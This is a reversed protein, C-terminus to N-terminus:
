RKEFGATWNVFVTTAPLESAQLPKRILFRQGDASVAYNHGTPVTEFAVGTFLPRPTGLELTTGSTVDVAMMSGSTSLFYLERGDRRWAPDAAGQSSVQWKGGPGPFPQIYVERRGSELSTYAMWRGDPSFRPSNEAFPGSLFPYPKQGGELPVIWIDWRQSPHAAIAAIFRGDRSWDAPDMETAHSALLSESQAGTAPKVYISGPGSRDSTFAIRNGDPSWVPAFDSAPDFTLRSTVGRSVELIWLDPNGPGADVVVRREDPSLSLTLYNAMGGIETLIRGARDVWALRSQRGGVGGQFVLVGNNSASFDANSAVGGGAAVDDVVPFPEGTFELKRVDFPQALLARDRVFLVYGPEVYEIRSLNGKLLTKTKKSNLDGVKLTTQGQRQVLGLYLFHRGDPLFQPWATGFEDEARNIVTAASAVGGAASVRRVSDTPSGDFLIVGGSGWSGDGNTGADCITQPPGGNVAIKKLRNDAMFALFRSDPSWFPRQAGETGALPQAVLSGMPRLWIRAAGSSDTANYALFRGDPSIKPTGITRIAGPTQIFFRVAEPKEPRNAIAWAGLAVAAVVGAAALGWAMRERSKRKAAVPAAVGARSGAEAIWKLELLLDRATQWRDDPDKELCRM